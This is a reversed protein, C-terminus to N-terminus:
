IKFHGTNKKLESIIGNFWNTTAMVEESNVSVEETSSSIGELSTMVQGQIEEIKVSADKVQAM